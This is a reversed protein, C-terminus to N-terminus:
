PVHVGIGYLRRLSLEISSGITIRELGLYLLQGTCDAKIQRVTARFLDKYRLKFLTQASSECLLPQEALGSDNANTVLNRVVSFVTGREFAINIFPVRM